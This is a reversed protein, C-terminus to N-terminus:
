LESFGSATWYGLLGVQMNQVLADPDFDIIKGNMTATRVAYRAAAIIKGELEKRYPSEKGIQMGSPPINEKEEYLWHSKPLPLSMTAFGSGDPLPPSVEDLKGSMAQALNQLKNVIGDSENEM